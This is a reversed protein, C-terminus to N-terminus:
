YTKETKRQERCLKLERSSEDLYDIKLKKFDIGRSILGLFKYGM